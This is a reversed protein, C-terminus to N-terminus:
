KLVQNHHKFKVPRFGTEREDKDELVLGTDRLGSYKEEACM